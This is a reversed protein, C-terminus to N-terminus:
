EGKRTFLFKIGLSIMMIILPYPYLDTYHESDIEEPDSEKILDRIDDIKDEIQKDENNEIHLFDLNVDQAIKRLTNPDYKSIAKSGNALKVYDDKGTQSYSQTKMPGGNETGFGIIAGEAAYGRLGEFSQLAKGDTIEGDSIIFLVRKRDEMKASSQLMKLTSNYATNLNTGTAYKRAIPRLAEIGEYVMTADISYPLLVKAYNDFEVISFRAGVFESVIKQCVNKVGSIRTNNGDYDEANMSVTGDVVFVIDLNNKIKEQYDTPYLPRIGILFFSGIILIDLLRSLIGTSRIISLVLLVGCIIGLIYVPIIPEYQLM